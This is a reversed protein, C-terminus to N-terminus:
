STKSINAANLGVRRTVVFKFYRLTELLRWNVAILVM